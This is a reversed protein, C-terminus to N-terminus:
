FERFPMNCLAFLKACALTFDNVFEFSVIM